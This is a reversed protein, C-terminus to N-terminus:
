RWGAIGSHRARRPSPKPSRSTHPPKEVRYAWARSDPLSELEASRKALDLVQEVKERAVSLRESEAIEMLTSALFLSAQGSDPELTLATEFAKKARERQEARLWHSGAEVLAAAQSQPPADREALCDAQLQAAAAAMQESTGAGLVESTALDCREFDREREAREAVALWIAAPVDGLLPRLEREAEALSPLADITSDHRKSPSARANKTM